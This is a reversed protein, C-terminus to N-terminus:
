RNAEGHPPPPMHHMHPMHPMHAMPHSVGFMGPPPGQPAPLPM